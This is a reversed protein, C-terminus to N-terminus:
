VCVHSRRSFLFWLWFNGGKRMIRQWERLRHQLDYFTIPCFLSMIRHEMLFGHLLKSFHLDSHTKHRRIHASAVRLIMFFDDFFDCESTSLRCQTVTRPSSTGIINTLADIVLKKDSNRRRKISERDAVSKLWHRRYQCEVNINLSIMM